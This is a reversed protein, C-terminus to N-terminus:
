QGHNQHELHNDGGVTVNHAGVAVAAHPVHESPRSDAHNRHQRDDHKHQLRHTVASLTGKPNRAPRLLPNRSTKKSAIPPPNTIDCHAFFGFILVTAIHIDNIVLLIIFVILITNM